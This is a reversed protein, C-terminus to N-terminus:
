KQLKIDPLARYILIDLGIGNQDNKNRKQTNVDM